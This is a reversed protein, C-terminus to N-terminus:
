NVSQNTLVIKEFYRTGTLVRTFATVVYDGSLAVSPGDSGSIPLQLNVKDLLSVGSFTDVMINVDHAYTDKIRRNQHIAEDWMKHVNGVNIPKPMIRGGLSGLMGSIIGSVPLNASFQKLDISNLEKFKGTIDFITSTAGYGASNNYLTSKSSVEHQLIPIGNLGFSQFSGGGMIEDVNFYRMLGSDQVSIMMCSTASSWGREAIHQAHSALPRNTPLWVQFDNTQHVQTKLGADGAFKSIANSSTGKVSGQAIKRMWPINDLVASIQVHEASHSGQIKTDGMIRFNMNNASGEVGDGVTVTIADGDKLGLKSILQAGEDKFSMRLSPLHQHITNFLYFSTLSNRHLPVSYGGISVDGNWQGEIGQM